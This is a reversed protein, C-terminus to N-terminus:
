EPYLKDIWNAGQVLVFNFEDLIFDFSYGRLGNGDIHLVYRSDRGQYQVTENSKDFIQLFGSDLNLFDLRVLFKPM